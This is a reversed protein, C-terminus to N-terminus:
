HLKLFFGPLFALELSRRGPEKSLLYKQFINLSTKPKWIMSYIKFTGDFDRNYWLIGNKVCIGQYNAFMYKTFTRGTRQQFDTQLLLSDYKELFDNEVTIQKGELGIVLPYRILHSFTEGDAASAKIKRDFEEAEAAIHGTESYDNITDDYTSYFTDLQLSFDITNYDIIGEGYLFILGERNKEAKGKLYKNDEAVLALTSSGSELEETFRQENDDWTIFSALLSYEKRAILM